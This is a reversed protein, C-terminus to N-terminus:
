GIMPLEDQASLNGDNPIVSAMRTASAVAAVEGTAVGPEIEGGKKGGIM